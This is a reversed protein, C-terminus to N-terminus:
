LCCPAQDFPAFVLEEPSVLRRSQWYANAWYVNNLDSMMVGRKTSVHIFKNGGYYIGVHNRWRGTKFFVLDGIQLTRKDIPRGLQIQEAVSRPLQRRMIDRFTMQVFASCDIGSRDQGGDRHPVGRWQEYHRYLADALQQQYNAPQQVPAHPQAVPAPAQMPNPSPKPARGSCGSLLLSLLIFIPLLLTKM